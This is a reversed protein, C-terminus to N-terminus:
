MRQLTFTFSPATESCPPTASSLGTPPPVAPCQPTPPPPPALPRIMLRATPPQTGTPHSVGSQSVGTSSPKPGPPGPAAGEGWGRPAKCSFPRWRGRTPAGTSGEQGGWPGPLWGGKVPGAGVDETGHQGPLWGRSPTSLAPPAPLSAPPAALSLSTSSNLARLVRRSPRPM